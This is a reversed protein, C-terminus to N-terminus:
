FWLNVLKVKIRRLLIRLLTSFSHRESAPPLTAIIKSDQNIKSYENLTIVMHAEIHEPMLNNKVFDHANQAIKHVEQDNNKMWNYQDFLNTLRENVPVYNKYAELAPYFWQLKNTEQKVLVSGSLMIWPIRVWSCTNGDLSALYKYKLHDEEKTRSYDNNFLIDIINKLDKGSQGKSNIPFTFRADIIEPYLKSLIVLNLRPLKDISNITYGASNYFESELSGSPAGRWFLKNEKEDWLITKATNEIRTSLDNWYNELMFADPLLFKDREYPSSLNKSMMFAPINEFEPNINKGEIYIHDLAHLLFDVNEIKYKQVLNELYNLILPLYYNDVQYSDAYIKQDVIQIRVLELKERIKKNNWIEDIKSQNLTKGKFQNSIFALIARREKSPNQVYFKETDMEKLELAISLNTSFIYTLFIFKFLKM